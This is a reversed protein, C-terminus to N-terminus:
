SDYQSGCLGSADDIIKLNPTNIIRVNMSYNSKQDFWLDRYYQPKSYLSILTGDVICWGERWAYYAQTEAWEKAEERAHDIRWQIYM